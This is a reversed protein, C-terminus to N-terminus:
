TGSDTSDPDTNRKAGGNGASGFSHSSLWPTGDRGCVGNM